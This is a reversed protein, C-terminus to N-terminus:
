EFSVRSKLGYIVRFGATHLVGNNGPFRSMCKVHNGPMGYFGGRWVREVTKDESERGDKVDYPYHEYASHTWEWVNGVMDVCDYASNGYPSYLDVPTTSGHGAESSNCRNKSFVAGWPYQRGDTGRAAKEWEAETPLRFIMTGSLLENELTVSLWKCYEMAETWKVGTVPHKKKMMWDAVPHPINRAQVYDNYQENTIPFRAMWIDHPIEALHQPQEDPGDESGMIFEGKPIGVFEMDNSLKQKFYGSLSGIQGVPIENPNYTIAYKLGLSEARIRMSVLIKQFAQERQGEFYDAYQWGRLRRPPECEELRIPIIFVAGEPKYDAYDLASKIEKQIYGDKTISDNTLCVIIVDTKEIAKEIELNWDQGPYLEKEDLWPELWSEALLKKHLDRVIPKDKSSHCLFVRLPRSSAPYIATM